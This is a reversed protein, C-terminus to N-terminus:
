RLMSHSKKWSTYGRLSHKPLRRWATLTSCLSKSTETRSWYNLSVQFLSLFIFAVSLTSCQRYQETCTNLFIHKPYPGHNRRDKSKSLSKIPKAVYLFMNEYCQFVDLMLVSTAWRWLASPDRNQAWHCLTGRGSQPCYYNDMSPLFSALPLWQRPARWSVSRCFHFCAPLLNYKVIWSINCGM